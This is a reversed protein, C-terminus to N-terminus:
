IRSRTASSPPVTSISLAGPRPAASVTRTGTGHRDPHHDGVVMADDPVSQAVQEALFRVDLDRAFGAVAPLRDGDDGGGARVHQQEIQVHRPQVPVRHERCQVVDRVPGGHHHQGGGGVVLVQDARHV